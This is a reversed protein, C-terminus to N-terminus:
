EGGELEAQVAELAEVTAAYHRAYRGAKRDRLSRYFGLWRPVDAVPFTDAWLGTCLRVRSRDAILAATTM